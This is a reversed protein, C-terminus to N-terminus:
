INHKSFRLRNAEINKTQKNVGFLFVAACLNINPFLCVNWSFYKPVFDYRKM